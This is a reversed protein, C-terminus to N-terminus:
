PFLFHNYLEPLFMQCFTSFARLIPCSCFVKIDAKEYNKIAAALFPKPSQRNAETVLWNQSEELIEQDGLIKFRFDNPTDYAFNVVSSLLGRKVQAYPSDFKSQFVTFLCFIIALMTPENRLIFFTIVLFIDM